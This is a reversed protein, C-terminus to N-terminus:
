AASEVAAARQLLRAVQVHTWGIGRGSPTPTGTATLADAVQRLSHGQARLRAALAVVDWATSMPDPVLSAGDKTFGYPAFTWAYAPTVRAKARRGDRLRKSIMARDLQAFVGMMQRVAARFPDDPDDEPVERGDSTFVTGGSTWVSGLLVEQTTLARSLRTLDSIVVGEVQRDRLACLLDPFAQRGAVGNTGSAVEVFEAVLEHAGGSGAVFHEVDHRQRPLGFRDEEAQQATSVRLYSALRM